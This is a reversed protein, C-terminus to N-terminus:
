EVVEIVAMMGADEHVLIHCHYVFRGTYDLFRSRIVIEGRPPLPITDHRQLPVATGNVSMLQFDNVHIHFPHWEGSENRITWEETTGLKVTTDIRDEVFANGDIGIQPASNQEMFTITRKAALEDKSFDDLEIIKTPLDQPTVPEGGSVMTAILMEPQAQSPIEPAWALSRLEYIGADGGQILVEAREGPGMLESQVSETSTLSNGDRAIVHLQHGVLQFNCFQNASANLIRWRQTEGPQIAIKPNVQGNVLTVFKGGQGRFPGQVVLLREKVGAVGPVKDLDGEIIIAGALGSGVQDASTGHPHPHYWYTGGPHDDPIDFEYGFTQGPQVHIFVNDSNDRPSVHLGHVHMNTMETLANVYAVKVTDGPKFRLTPGPLADNYGLRPDNTDDVQMAQLTTTLRGNQSAIVQPEIFGDSPAAQPTASGQIMAPLDMGSAQAGLAAVGAIAVGTGALQRRNLRRPLTPQTTTPSV